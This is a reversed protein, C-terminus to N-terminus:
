ETKTATVKLSQVSGDAIGHLDDRFAEFDWCEGASGTFRFAYKDLTKHIRGGCLSDVQIADDYDINEDPDDAVVDLFECVGQMDSMLQPPVDVTLEVRTERPSKKTRMPEPFDLVEIDPRGSTFDVFEGMSRHHFFADVAQMAFAIDVFNEDRARCTGSLGRFHIPEEVDSESYSVHSRYPGYAVCLMMRGDALAIQLRQGDDRVLLYPDDGGQLATEAFADLFERHSLNSGILAKSRYVIM